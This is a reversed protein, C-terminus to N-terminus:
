VTQPEEFLDVGTEARAGGEPLAGEVVYLFKLNNADLNDASRIIPASKRGGLIFIQASTLSDFM